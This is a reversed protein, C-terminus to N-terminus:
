EGEYYYCAIRAAAEQPNLITVGGKDWPFGMTEVMYHESGQTWENCAVDGETWCFTLQYGNQVPMPKMEYPVDLIYLAHTIYNITNLYINM